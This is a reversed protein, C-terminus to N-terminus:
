NFVWLQSNECFDARNRVNFTTAYSPQTVNFTPAATRSNEQMGCPRLFRRNSFPSPRDSGSQCGTTMWGLNLTPFVSPTRTHYTRSRSGGICYSERERHRTLGSSVELLASLDIRALRGVTSGGYTREDAREAPDQRHWSDRVIALM